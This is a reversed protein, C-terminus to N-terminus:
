MQISWARCKCSVLQQTQAEASGWTSAHASTLHQSSGGPQEAHVAAPLSQTVTSQAITINSVMCAHRCAHVCGGAQGHSWHSIRGDAAASVLLEESEPGRDLWRLAWVPEAHAGGRHDARVLPEAQRPVWPHLGDSQRGLICGWCKAGPRVHRHLSTGRMGAEGFKPMALDSPWAGAPESHGECASTAATRPPPPVADSHVAARVQRAKVDYLALTGDQFGAGLLNPARASWALATVGAGTSLAWLPGGPSRLSWFCLAGRQPPAWRHQGHGVALIDSNAQDPM